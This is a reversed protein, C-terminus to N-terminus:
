DKPLELVREALITKLIETTGARIGSARGLLEYFQWQADDPAWPSGEAILM